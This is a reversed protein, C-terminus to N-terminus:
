VSCADLREGDPLGREAAPRVTTRSQAVSRGPLCHRLQHGSPRREMAACGAAPAVATTGHAFGRLTHGQLCDRQKCGTFATVSNADPASGQVWGSTTYVLPSQAQAGGMATLVSFAAWALMTGARRCATGTICLVNRSCAARDKMPNASRQAQTASSNKMM